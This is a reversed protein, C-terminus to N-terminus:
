FNGGDAIETQPINVWQDSVFMLADRNQIGSNLSVPYGGISTANGGGGGGGPAWGSATLVYTGQGALPQPVQGQVGNVTTTPATFTGFDVVGANPAISM